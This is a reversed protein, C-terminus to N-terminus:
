RLRGSEVLHLRQLRAECRRLLAAEDMPASITSNSENYGLEFSDPVYRGAETSTMNFGYYDFIRQFQLLKGESITLHPRDNDLWRLLGEFIRPGIGRGVYNPMVRVTCIKRENFDNKAIGLGVLEGDREVPLLLRTGAHLGPVVKSIFWHQIDPYDHSLPLLFTLARGEISSLSERCLPSGLNSFTRSM